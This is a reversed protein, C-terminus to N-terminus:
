ACFAHDSLPEPLSFNFYLGPQCGWTTHCRWYKTKGRTNGKDLHLLWLVLYKWLLSGKHRWFELMNRIRSRQNGERELLILEGERLTAETCATLNPNAELISGTDELDKRSPRLYKWLGEELKSFQQLKARSIKTGSVTVHAPQTRKSRWM